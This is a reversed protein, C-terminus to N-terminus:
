PTSEKTPWLPHDAPAPKECGACSIEQWDTTHITEGFDSTCEEYMGAPTVDTVHFMEWLTHERGIIWEDSGCSPCLYTPM